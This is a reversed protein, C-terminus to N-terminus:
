AIDYAFTGSEVTITGEGWEPKVWRKAQWEYWVRRGHGVISTLAETALELFTGCRPGLARHHTPRWDSNWYGFQGLYHSKAAYELRGDRPRATVVASKQIPIPAWIGRSSVDAQMYGYPSLALRGVLANGTHQGTLSDFQADFFNCASSCGLRKATLEGALPVGAEITRSSPSSVPAARALTVTIDLLDGSDFFMPWSIAGLTHGESVFALVEKIATEVNESKSAIQSVRELSFPPKSELIAICPHLPAVWESLQEAYSIPMDWLATAARLTRLYASRGRLSQQTFFQGTMVERPDDFFRGVEHGVEPLQTTSLEWEYAYQRVFPRGVQLELEELQRWLIRPVHHGKTALFSESPAFDAPAAIPSSSYTGLNSSSGQPLLLDSLASRALLHAGLDNANSAAAGSLRALWYPLLGLVADYELVRAALHQKLAESVAAGLELDVLLRGLEQAAWWGSAAPPWHLRTLLVRVDHPSLKSSM